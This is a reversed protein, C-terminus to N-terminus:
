KAKRAAEIEDMLRRVLAHSEASPERAYRMERDQEAIVARLQARLAKLRERAESTM